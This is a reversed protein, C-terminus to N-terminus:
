LLLISIPVGFIGAVMVDNVRYAVRSQGIHLDPIDLSRAYQLKDPWKVASAPAEAVM